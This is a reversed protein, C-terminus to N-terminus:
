LSGESDLVFLSKGTLRLHCVASSLVASKCDVRLSQFYLFVVCASLIQANGIGEADVVRIVGPFVQKGLDKLASKKLVISIVLTSLSLQWARYTSVENLLIYVASSFM